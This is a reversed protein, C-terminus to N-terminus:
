RGGPHHQGHHRWLDRGGGQGQLHREHHDHRGRHHHRRAAPWVGARDILPLRGAQVRSDGVFAASGTNQPKARQDGRLGHGGLNRTERGNPHDHVHAGHACCHHRSGHPEFARDPLRGFGLNHAFHHGVLTSPDNLKELFTFWRLGFRFAAHSQSSPYMPLLLRCKLGQIALM